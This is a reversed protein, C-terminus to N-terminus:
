RKEVEVEVPAALRITLITGAPLTAPNRDGAMVVAAGGAAGTASGVIAGKKGGIIAGLIAGGIAAGGIKRTSETSPSEGERYITETNLPVETGDDLVLTNFRVGLRARDRMKGGSEVLVVSGIARTGAAVAVRGDALVDRTVRAEVRDEVRTRESSLPTEVRLGIVSSSPIVLQELQPQAPIPAEASVTAPPASSPEEATPRTTTASPTNTSETAAAEPRAAPELRDASQSRAPAPTQPTSASARPAPRERRPVAAGPAAAPRTPTPAVSSTVLAVSSTSPAPPTVVAETEAVAPAPASQAVPTSAPAATVPVERDDQRSVCATSGAVATFGAALAAVLFPKSFM